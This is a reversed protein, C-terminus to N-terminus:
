IIYTYFPGYTPCVEEEFDHGTMMTWSVHVVKKRWAEEGRKVMGKELDEYL